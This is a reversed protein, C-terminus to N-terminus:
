RAWFSPTPIRIPVNVLAVVGAKKLFEPVDFREEKSIDQTIVPKGANIAFTESSHEGMPLRVRGVVDPAWGVGARVLLCQEDERIELIKARGTGLAEAVLRCAETLVEDLGDSHLALEGFGALVQQRKMVQGYDLM